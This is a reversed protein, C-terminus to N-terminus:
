QEEAGGQAKEIEKEMRERLADLEADLAEFDPYGKRMEDRKAKTMAAKFDRTIRKIVVENIAAQEDVNFDYLKLGFMRALVLSSPEVGTIGTKGEILADVSRINRSSVAPPTVIDYGFKTANWLKDWDTDTPQHISKGTYPDVGLVLGAIGSVFPGSPTLGGPFWSQGMFGNPLGKTMSAMPFYDGLKYYVPNEDDGMFPVRVHMYPGITGFFMRERVSEPGNARAEEDDGGMAGMAGELLMYAALVNAFKWPQYV